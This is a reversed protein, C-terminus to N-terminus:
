FTDKKSRLWAFRAEPQQLITEKNIENILDINETRLFLNIKRENKLIVPLTMQKKVRLEKVKRYYENIFSDHPLISLAFKINALTYEHACCILTDDPLSNIKMLSQYMQSPTGEFLRGCGGSFLTDGCFLYPHSFYCVHGLTHGPTAFLTFKEGLVRITDGDGVLHTAGKDQTEAPGYVTMQPFHQLLEKVGGVHDHHHHTLFIAEPMWKHEAIAKLVPAAEGPDVIVCRGEDNTLVWIYNDQFAPISNLNM